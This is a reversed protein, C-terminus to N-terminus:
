NNLKPRRVKSQNRTRSGEHIEGVNEIRNKRRRWDKIEAICRRQMEAIDEATLLSPSKFANAIRMESYLLIIQRGTMARAWM